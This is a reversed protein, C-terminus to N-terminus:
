KVIVQYKIENGDWCSCVSDEFTFAPYESCITTACHEQKIKYNINSYGFYVVLFTELVFLIIFIIAVVKWKNIAM